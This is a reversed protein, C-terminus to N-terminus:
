QNIFSQYFTVPQRQDYRDLHEQQLTLSKEIQHSSLLMDNVQQDEGTVSFVIYEIHFTSYLWSSVAMFVASFLENLSPHSWNFSLSITVMKHPLAFLLRFFGVIVDDEVILLYEPLLNHESQVLYNKIAEESYKIRQNSIRMSHDDNLLRYFDAFDNLNNRDMLKIHIKKKM